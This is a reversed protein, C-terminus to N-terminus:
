TSAVDQLSQLATRISTRLAQPDGLTAPPSLVLSIGYRLLLDALARRGGADLGPSAAALAATLLPEVEGRLRVLDRTLTRLVPLPSTELLRQFLVHDAAYEVTFALAEVVRELPAAGTRLQDALREYYGALERALLAGAVDDAGGVHKYVTPRSVGAREAVASVTTGAPGRERLLSEAADLIRAALPGSGSAPPPSPEVM